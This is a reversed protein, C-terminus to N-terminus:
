SVAEVFKRFFATERKIAPIVEDGEIEFECHVSLPGDFGVEDLCEFVGTWNVMGDGAEPVTRKMGGHGNTPVRELLADKLSVVSLYPRVMGVATSFKEGETILHCPDLYAGLCDPDFGSLLHALSGANLGMCKNSHTHYCIKVGHKRSLEQWGEFGRRVEDVKKQYDDTKPDFQYYALKLIRVDSEDMARLLPEVTPHDPWRLEFHGTVMPIELGSERLIRRAEPLAETVNEPAVPFGPRVALDYGDILLEAGLEALEPVTKERLRKSFLILKVLVERNHM